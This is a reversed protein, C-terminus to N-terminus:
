QLWRQDPSHHGPVIRHISAVNREPEADVVFSDPALSACLVALARRTSEAAGGQSARFQVEYFRGPSTGRVIASTLVGATRVVAVPLHGISRAVQQLGIWTLSFRRRSVRRILFAWLAAFSALVGATIFEDATETGAFLMYAAYSLCWVPIPTRM